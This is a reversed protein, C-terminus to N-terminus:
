RATLFEPLTVGDRPRDLRAPTAIERRRARKTDGPSSVPAPKLRCTVSAPASISTNGTFHPTGKEDDTRKLFRERRESDHTRRQRPANPGEAEM